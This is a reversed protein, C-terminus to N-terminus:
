DVKRSRKAKAKGYQRRHFDAFLLLLTLNFGVNFLWAPFGACGPGKFHLWLFPISVVFSFMFQLFFLFYSIRAVNLSLSLMAPKLIGFLLVQIIQSNTVFKKWPPPCGISYKGLLFLDLILFLRFLLM